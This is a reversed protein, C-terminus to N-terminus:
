CSFRLENQFGQSALWSEYSTCYSVFDTEMFKNAETVRIPLALQIIQAPGAPPRHIGQYSILVFPSMRGMSAIVTEAAQCCAGFLFLVLM